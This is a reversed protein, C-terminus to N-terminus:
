CTIVNIAFYNSCDPRNKFVTTRYDNTTYKGYFKNERCKVTVIRCKTISNEIRFHVNKYRGDQKFCRQLTM